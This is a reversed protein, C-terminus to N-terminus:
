LVVDTEPAGSVRDYLYNRVQTWTFELLGNQELENRLNGPLKTRDTFYRRRGIRIREGTLPDQIFSDRLPALYRTLQDATVGTIRVRLFRTPDLELAGWAFGDERIDVIDGTKWAMDGVGTQERKLLLEAM